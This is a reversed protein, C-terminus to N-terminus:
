MCPVIVMQLSKLSPSCAVFLLFSTLDTNRLSRTYKQYAYCHMGMGTFCILLGTTVMTAHNVTTTSAFQILGGTEKNNGWEPILFLPSFFLLVVGRTTIAETHYWCLGDTTLVVKTSYALTLSNLVTWHGFFRNAKRLLSTDVNPVIRLYQKLLAEILVMGLPWTLSTAVIPLHGNLSTGSYLGGHFSSRECRGSVVFVRCM